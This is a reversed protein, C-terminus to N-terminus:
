LSLDTYKKTFTLIDPNSDDEDIAKDIFKFIKETIRKNDGINFMKSEIIENIIQYNDLLSQWFQSGFFGEELFASIDLGLGDWVWENTEKIDINQRLIKESYANYLILTSRRKEEEDGLLKDVFIDYFVHLSERFFMTRSPIKKYGEGLILSITNNTLQILKDDVEVALKRTGKSSKKPVLLHDTINKINQFHEIKIENCIDEIIIKSIEGNSLSYKGFKSLSENMISVINEIFDVVYDYSDIIMLKTM